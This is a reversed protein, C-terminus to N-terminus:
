RRHQEITKPEYLRVGYYRLAGSESPSGSKPTAILERTISRNGSNRGVVADNPSAPGFAMFISTPSPLSIMVKGNGISQRTWWVRAAHLHVPVGHHPVAFM